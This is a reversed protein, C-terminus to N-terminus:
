DIQFDHSYGVLLVLTNLLIPCFWIQTFVKVASVHFYLRACGIPLSGGMKAIDMYYTIKVQGEHSQM